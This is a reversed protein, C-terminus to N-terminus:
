MKGTLLMAHNATLQMRAILRMLRSSTEPVCPTDTGNGINGAQDTMWPEVQVVLLECECGQEQDSILSILGDVWSIIDALKVRCGKHSPHGASESSKKIFTLYSHTLPIPMALGFNPTPPLQLIKRDLGVALRQDFRDAHDWAV